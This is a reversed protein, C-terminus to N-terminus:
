AYLGLTEKLSGSFGKSISAKADLDFYRWLDSSVTCLFNDQVLMVAKDFHEVVVSASSMDFAGGGLSQASSWVGPIQGHVIASTKSYWEEIRSVFRLASQKESFGISHVKYFEIIERKSVFFGSDRVLTNLESLHTRFYVYYLACEVMARMSSAAPKYLGLAVLSAVHHGSAQMERVFALAPNGLDIKELQNAWIALRLNSSEVKSAIETNACFNKSHLNWDIVSLAACLNTSM